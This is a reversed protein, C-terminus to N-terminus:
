LTFIFTKDLHVFSHRLFSSLIQCYPRRAAFIWSQNQTGPLLSWAFKWLFYLLIGILDYRYTKELYSLLIEPLLSIKVILVPSHRINLLLIYYYSWYKNTLDAITKYSFSIRTLYHNCSHLNVYFDVRFKRFASSCKMKVFNKWIVLNLLIYSKKLFQHDKM